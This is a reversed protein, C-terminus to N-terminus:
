VGGMVLTSEWVFPVDLVGHREVDARLRILGAEFEDEPILSFTSIFQNAVREVYDPGIPKPPAMFTKHGVNTFGAGRLGELVQELPLFRARDVRAFSPFYRNMPHREISDISATAFAAYGRRLVRHCETFAARLDTVYHLMYVGFVLDATHDQLPIHPLAARIWHAPIDKGAARNLMGASPETALLLCNHAELFAGANNGTGAGVELVCTAQAERALRLIEGLFPGGGSRHNDYTHAAKDYDFATM